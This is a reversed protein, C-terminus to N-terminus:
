GTPVDKVMDQTILNSVQIALGELQNDHNTSWEGLSAIAYKFESELQDQEKEVRELENILATQQTMCIDNVEEQKAKGMTTTKELKCIYETEMKQLDKAM